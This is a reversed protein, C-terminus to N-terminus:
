YKRRTKSNRIRTKRDDGSTRIRIKKTTNHKVEQKEKKEYFVFYIGNIDHFLTITDRIRIDELIKLSYLYKQHEESESPEELYKRLENSPVDLNYVLISLLKYKINDNEMNNKLLYLLTEKKIIQDENVNINETKIKQITNNKDVYVFNVKITTILEEYFDAYEQESKEYEEVWDINLNDISNSDEEQEFSM